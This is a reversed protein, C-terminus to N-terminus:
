KKGLEKQFDALKGEFISVASELIERCDLQGWSEVFVVFDNESDDVNVAGGTLEDISDSINSRVLGKENIVVKGGKLEFVSPFSEVLSPEKIESVNRIVPYRKYYVLGPSWKAHEKGKGLVATAEIELKQGKLLRAVPMKGFVAKVKPDKSSLEESYVYGAADSVLTLKLQCRACGVGGCKCSEPLTYSELDTKLPVLGLRHAVMEDYMVSSNKRIEVEEIALVPVEDMAIRRIANVVSANTGHVAFVLKNSKKDYDLLEIEM